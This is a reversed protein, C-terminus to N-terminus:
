RRDAPGRLGPRDRRFRGVLEAALHQADSASGGNGCWLIKHGDLVTQTMRRAILELRPRQSDLEQIVALHRSVAEAFVSELNLSSLM